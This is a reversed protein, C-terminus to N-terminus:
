GGSSVSGNYIPLTALTLYGSDNTLESVKTPVTAKTSATIKGNTITISAIAQNSTASVSSDLAQIASDIDTSTVFGSDNTLDSTKTPESDIIENVKKIIDNPKVPTTLKTISM